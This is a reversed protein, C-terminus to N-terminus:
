IGLGSVHKSLLGTFSDFVPKAMCECISPIEFHLPCFFIVDVLEGIPQGGNYTLEAHISLGTSCRKLFM